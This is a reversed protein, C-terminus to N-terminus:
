ADGLKRILRWATQAAALASGDAADDEAVGEHAAAEDLDHWRAAGNDDPEARYAAYAQMICDFELEPLALGYREATQELIRLQFLANYSLVYPAAALLDTVQQHVRPWIPAGRLTEATLGHQAAAAESVPGQPLIRQHLRTDGAASVVAIEVIEAQANRGTANCAMLLWDDRGAWERFAALAREREAALRAGDDEKPAAEPEAAAKDRREAEERAAAKQLAAEREALKDTAAELVAVVRAGKFVANTHRDTFALIRDARFSQLAQAAQSQGVVWLHGDRRTLAEVDVDSRVPAGGEPALYEIYLRRPLDQLAAAPDQPAQAQWPKQAPRATEVTGGSNRVVRVVVWVVFGLGVVLILEIM